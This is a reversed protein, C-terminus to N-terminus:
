GPGVRVRVRVWQFLASMDTVKSTHWKSIHGYNKEAAKSDSLWASVRSKLDTNDKLAGVM